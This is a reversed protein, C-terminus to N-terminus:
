FYIFIFPNLYKVLIENNNDVFDKFYKKVERKEKVTYFQKEFM